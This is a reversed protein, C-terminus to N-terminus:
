MRTKFKWMIIMSENLFSSCSVITTKLHGLCSWFLIRNQVMDICYRRKQRSSVFQAFMYKQTHLLAFTAAAILKMIVCLINVKKLTTMQLTKPATSHTCYKRSTKSLWVLVNNFRANLYANHLYSPYHLEVIDVTNKKQLNRCSNKSQLCCVTYLTWQDIFTSFLLGGDFM